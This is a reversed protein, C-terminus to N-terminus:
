GKNFLKRLEEVMHLVASNDKPEKPEFGSEIKKDELMQKYLEKVIYNIADLVEKGLVSTEKFSDKINQSNEDLSERVAVYGSVVSDEVENGLLADRYTGMLVYEEEKKNPKDFHLEDILASLLPMKVKNPLAEGDKNRIECAKAVEEKLSAERDIKLMDLGVREEYLSVLKEFLVKAEEREENTLFEM